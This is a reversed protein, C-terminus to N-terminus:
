DGEAVTQRNVPSPAILAYELHGRFCLGVRLPVFPFHTAFVSLRGLPM